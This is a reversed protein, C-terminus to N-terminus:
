DSRLRQTTSVYLVCSMNSAHNKSLILETKYVTRMQENNNSICFVDKCSQPGCWKRAWILGCGEIQRGEEEKVTKLVCKRAYVYNGELPFMEVSIISAVHAVSVDTIDCVYAHHVFALVSNVDIILQRSIRCNCIILYVRIGRHRHTIHRFQPESPVHAAV